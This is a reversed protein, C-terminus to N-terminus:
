PVCSDRIPKDSPRVTIIFVYNTWLAGHTKFELQISILKSVCMKRRQYDAISGLWLSTATLSFNDFLLTILFSVCFLFYSLKILLHQNCLSIVNHKSLSIVVTSIQVFYFFIVNLVSHQLRVSDSTNHCGLIFARRFSVTEPASQSWINKSSPVLAIQGKYYISHLHKVFCDCCPANGIESSALLWDYTWLHSM